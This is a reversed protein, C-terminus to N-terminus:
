YNMYQFSISCKLLKGNVDNHVFPELDKLAQNMANLIDHDKIDGLKIRKKNIGVMFFPGISTIELNDFISAYISDGYKSLFVKRLKQGKLEFQLLNLIEHNKVDCKPLKDDVYALFVVRQIYNTQSSDKKSLYYKNNLFYAVSLVILILLILLIYKYKKLIM